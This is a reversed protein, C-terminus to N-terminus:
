IERKLDQHTYNNLLILYKMQTSCNSNYANSTLWFYDYELQWWDIKSSKM